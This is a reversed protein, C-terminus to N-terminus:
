MGLHMESDLAGEATLAVNDIIFQIVDFVICSDSNPLIPVELSSTTTSYDGRSLFQPDRPEALEKKLTGGVTHLGASVKTHNKTM